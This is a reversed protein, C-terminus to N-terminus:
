IDAMKKYNELRIKAEEEADSFLEEALEPFQRKLSAYRNESMIFEQYCATPEKSDLTLKGTEPHYRYM